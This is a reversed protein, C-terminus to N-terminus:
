KVLDEESFLVYGFQGSLGGRHKAMARLAQSTRSFKGESYINVIGPISVQSGSADFDSYAEVTMDEIDAYLAKIRIRYLSSTSDQLNVIAPNSSASFSQESPNNLTGSSSWSSIQVNVWEAGDGLWSLKLSKIPSSLSSLSSDSDFLDIYQFDNKEIDFIEQEVNKEVSREWSSANSLYGSSSLNSVPTKNIRIEYLADEVGSEAAYFSRIGNDVLISQKINQMSVVAYSSAATVMGALVLVSMLLLSGEKNEKVQKFVSNYNRM